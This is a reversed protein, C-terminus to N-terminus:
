NGVKVVFNSTGTKLTGMNSTLLGVWFKASTLLALSGNMVPSPHHTTLKLTAQDKECGVTSLKVQGSRM